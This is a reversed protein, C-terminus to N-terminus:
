LWYLWSWGTTKYAFTQSINEITEVTTSTAEHYNTGAKGYIRVTGAQVGLKGAVTWVDTDILRTFFGAMSFACASLVVLTIGLWSRSNDNTMAITTM